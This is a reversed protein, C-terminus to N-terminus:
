RVPPPKLGATSKRTRGMHIRLPKKAHMLAKQAGENLYVIVADTDGAQGGEGGSPFPVKNLGYAENRRCNKHMEELKQLVERATARKEVPESSEVILMKTAIFDLFDHLHQTCCPNAHLGRIWQRITLQVTM